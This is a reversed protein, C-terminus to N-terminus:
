IANRLFPTSVHGLHRDHCSVLPEAPLHCPMLKMNDPMLFGACVKQMREPRRKGATRDARSKLGPLEDLAKKLFHCRSGTVGEPDKGGISSAQRVRKCQQRQDAEPFARNADCGRGVKADRVLVARNQACRECAFAIFRHLRDHGGQEFGNRISIHHVDLFQVGRNAACM